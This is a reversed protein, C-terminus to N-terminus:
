SGDCRQMLQVIQTTGANADGNDVRLTIPTGNALEAREGAALVVPAGTPAPCADGLRCQDFQYSMGNVIETQNAGSTPSSTSAGGQYRCRVYTTTALKFGLEACHNGGNGMTVALAPPIVLDLYPAVPALAGDVWSSPGYSKSAVLETQICGLKAADAAIADPASADVTAPEMGSRIEFGCGFTSWLAVIWMRAM